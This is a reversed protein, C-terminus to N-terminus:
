LVCKSPQQPREGLGMGSWFRGARVPWPDRELIESNRRIPPESVPVPSFPTLGALELCVQSKLHRPGGPVMTNKGSVMARSAGRHMSPNRGGEAGQSLVEGGPEAVVDDQGGAAGGSVGPAVGAQQSRRGDDVPEEDLDEVAVGGQGMDREQGAAGEGGAGEA